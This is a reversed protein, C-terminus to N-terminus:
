ISSLILDPWCAGFAAEGKIFAQLGFTNNAKRVNRFIKKYM